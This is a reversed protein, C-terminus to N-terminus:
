FLNSLFALYYSFQLQLYTLIAQPKLARLQASDVILIMIFIRYVFANEMVHM